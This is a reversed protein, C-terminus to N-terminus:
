QRGTIRYVPGNTDCLYMEGDADLGFSSAQTPREAPNLSSRDPEILVGSQAVKGAEYKLGYVRGTSYDSFVYWGRLSPVRKGRYVYGGTVSAATGNHSYEYVPDILKGGVAAPSPLFDHAGERRRWGYNGGKEVVDVEEWTDQGVDGTYMVATQPDWCFRWPNRFGLAWVEPRAGKVAVFPNDKPVAYGERPSVDLRLIKGLLVDLRQGHDHPDRQSGGDGFGAYLYGDPGFDIQGGNHNPYPQDLTLVVRESSTDVREAKPDVRLETVFSKLNPRRATYSLYLLGNEPFKPHFAISLLGCEGEMFVQKRLDLYPAKNPAKGNGLLLVRGAQEVVFLRGAPDHTLYSPKELTVFPELRIAPLEGARAFTITALAVLIAVRIATHKMLLLIM